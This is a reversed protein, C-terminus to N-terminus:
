PGEEDSVPRRDVPIWPRLRLTVKTDPSPVAEPDAEWEPLMVDEKDPLVQSWGLLEDGFTVLGMISGSVDAEYVQRDQFDTVMRSGGFIWPEDPLRRGSNHDRVWAHIPVERTEGTEEDEYVFTAMVESGEPPDATYDDGTENLKWRGPRGAEMGILLLAAHIHSPKALAIMLSEHTRTGPLCVIQELWGIDIGVVGEVDIFKEEINVTLNPWQIPQLPTPSATTTTEIEAPPVEPPDDSTTATVPIEVAGSSTHFGDIAETADAVEAAEDSMHDESDATPPQTETIPAHVGASEGEHRGRCGTALLIASALLVACTVLM